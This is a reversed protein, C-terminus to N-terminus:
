PAPETEFAYKRVCSCRLAETMPQPDLSIGGASMKLLYSTDWLAGDRDRAVLMVGHSLDNGVLMPRTMGGHREVLTEFSTRGVLEFGTGALRYSLLRPPEDTRTLPDRYLALLVDAPGEEGIGLALGYPPLGRTPLVFSHDYRGNRFVHLRTQYDAGLVELTPGQSRAYSADVIGTLRSRALTARAEDVTTIGPHFGLAEPPLDAVNDVRLPEEVVPAYATCGCSFGLGLLLAGIRRWAPLVPLFQQESWRAWEGIERIDGDAVALRLRV